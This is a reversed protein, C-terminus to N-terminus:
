AFFVSKWVTGDFIYLRSNASNYVLSGDAFNLGSPVVSVIPVALLGQASELQQANESSHNVNFDNSVM